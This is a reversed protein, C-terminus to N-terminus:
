VGWGGPSECIKKKKNGDSKATPGSPKRSARGRTETKTHNREIQCPQRVTFRTQKQETANVYSQSERNLRINGNSKKFVSGAM